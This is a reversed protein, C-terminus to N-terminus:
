LLDTRVYPHELSKAASIRSDPNFVLMKELIDIALPNANPLVYDFPCPDRQPMSRLLRRAHSSHIHRLDGESPTGMFDTVLQLQHIHDQGPFIPRRLLIEAFICGVAWIDISSTYNSNAVLEPARYWLTVVHETLPPGASTDTAEADVEGGPSRAARALGFDCIRLNFNRDVLLNATKLDRHIINASHM